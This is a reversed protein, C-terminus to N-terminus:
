KEYTEIYQKVIIEFDFKIEFSRRLNHGLEIRLHADKYLKSMAEFLDKTNKPRILLGTKKDFIIETNGGVSTAITPLGLMAAEVLVVSFAEHYTPQIFIDANAMLQLPDDIHGLVEIANSAKSMELYKNFDPGDGLIKLEVDEILESLKMFAKITEGIGKDEVLRNATLFLLKDNKKKPYKGIEDKVGNYITIMKSRIISDFPLNNQILKAENISVAVISNALHASLYVLKGIPNKYWINLNQFIHKLDAHDTWIVKKGILKAAITGAIFDDKSQIHVVDPNLKILVYLYWFVLLIQWILYFPVLLTKVGSWNQRPWWWGKINPVNKINAFALIKNSRAILTTSYGKRQLNEALFVPMREGGGFDSYAANRIILIRKSKAM